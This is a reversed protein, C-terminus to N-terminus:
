SLDKDKKHLNIMQEESMQKKATNRITVARDPATLVMGCVTGDDYVYQRILKWGQKIAKNYHKYVTSDMIWEKNISDYNLTTEREEVNLRTNIKIIETMEAV